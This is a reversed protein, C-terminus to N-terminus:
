RGKRRGGKLDYLEVDGSFSRLRVRAEAQGLELRFERGRKVEVLAQELKAGHAIVDGDYTEIEILASAEPDIGIRIEGHHTDFFYDGEPLISGDYLIDGSTSVLDAMTAVAGEIRIDGNVSEAVIEGEVDRMRIGENTAHVDIEGHTGRLTVSGHVSRVRVRGRGGQILLDGGLVRVEVENDVAEIECDLDRGEVEIPMWVPVRVEVDAEVPHGYEGGVSGHVRRGRQRLDLHLDEDGWAQLEVSDRDWTQVILTGSHLDLLLPTGREVAIEAREAWAALPVALTMVLAAILTRELHM